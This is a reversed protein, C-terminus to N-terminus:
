DGNMVDNVGAKGHKISQKVQYFEKRLGRVEHTETM